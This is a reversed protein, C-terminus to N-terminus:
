QCQLELRITVAAIIVRYLLRVVLNLLDLYFLAILHGFAIHHDLKLGLIDLLGYILIRILLLPILKKYVM